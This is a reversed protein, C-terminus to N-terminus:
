RLAKLVQALQDPCSTGRNGCPTGDLRRVAEDVSMGKILAGLGLANGPCGKTFKVEEVIGDKIKIDIQKSCVKESPTASVCRVGDVVEDKIIKYVETNEQQMTEATQNQEQAVAHICFVLSLLVIIIRKM